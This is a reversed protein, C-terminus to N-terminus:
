QLDQISMKKLNTTNRRKKRCFAYIASSIVTPINYGLFVLFIISIINKSKTTTIIFKGILKGNEYTQKVTSNDPLYAVKVIPLVILISLTFFILPLILGVWKNNAKSLFIQLFIIGVLIPLLFILIIIM